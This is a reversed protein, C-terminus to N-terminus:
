QTPDGESTALGQNAQGIQNDIQSIQNNIQSLQASGVGGSASAATGTTTSSQSAGQTAAPGQTLAAHGCGAMLLAAAGALAVSGLRGLRRM